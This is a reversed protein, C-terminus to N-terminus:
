PSLTRACRFGLWNLRYSPELSDRFASRAYDAFGLWSGGRVVRSADGASEWARGDPPAGRYDDHWTDQVWEWVNGHMDYLGFASPLLEGVAHPKGGSNEGYWGARGLAEKGDGTYYETTTGARCAYEWEAETPLRLGAWACFRQADAWSVGVVPERAQNFRRDGWYEPEPAGSNALLFRGYEENTVPFRGLEFAAVRVEHQPCEDRYGVGEPSGMHFVGAPIVVLEIGAEVVVWEARRPAAAGAIAPSPHGRLAASLAELAQPAIRELVRLAALQRAWLGPDAGPPRSLLRVFPAASVETADDLCESVLDAHQAFAPMDVVRDMLPEFVSPRPLACLLPFVERWWSEGFRAALDDLVSPDQLALVKLQCAALYEQFGLHMFGYSDLGWGTLLGSDDRITRLFDAAAGAWQIAGLAPQIRPALEAASAQTRGVQSHLWYAAPELVARARDATVKIDLKKATRWHELLVTVCEDYLQARREPLRGRDMHVLCLNTLLLPNRTLEFVRRARFEPRRLRECLEDAERKALAEAQAKDDTLATRLSRFWNKIFQEARDRDLPRLQLEVFKESLGGAPYGAYRCTVAFFCDPHAAVADDIWRAVAARAPEDAVEDLGDLLFLLHGRSLLRRAFGDDFGWAERGLESRVFAELGARPDAMDRLPLFIPVTDSPLGLGEPDHRVCALLLRRLHTTKGSGPHGLIALARRGGRKKAYGFAGALAVPEASEAVEESGFRDKGARGVARTDVTADLPVYLDELRIPVRVRTAFGMMPVTEYLAAAKERYRNIEADTDPPPPATHVHVEVPPSTSPSGMLWEIGAAGLLGVAAGALWAIPRPVDRLPVDIIGLHLTSAYPLLLHFAVGGACAGALFLAYRFWDRKAGM